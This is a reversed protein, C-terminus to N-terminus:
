IKIWHIQCPWSQLSCVSPSFINCQCHHFSFSFFLLHICFTRNLELSQFITYLHLSPSLNWRPYCFCLNAVVLADCRTFHVLTFYVIPLYCCLLVWQQLFFMLPNACSCRTSVFGARSVFCSLNFLIVALRFFVCVVWNLCRNYSIFKMWNRNVVTM